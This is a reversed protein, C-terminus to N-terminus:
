AACTTRETSYMFRNWVPGFSLSHRRSVVAPVACLLDTWPTNQRSDRGQQIAAAFAAPDHTTTISSYVKFHCSSIAGAAREQLYIVALIPLINSKAPM